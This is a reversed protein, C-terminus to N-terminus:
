HQSFFFFFFSFLLFSFFRFVQARLKVSSISNAVTVLYGTTSSSYAPPLMSGSVSYSISSMAPNTCGNCNPYTGGNSCGCTGSISGGPLLALAALAPRRPTTGAQVGGVSSAVEAGDSRHHTLALGEGGIGTSSVASRSGVSSRAGRFGDVSDAEAGVGTSVPLWAGGSGGAGGSGAAAASRPAASAPSTAWAAMASSGPAGATEAM